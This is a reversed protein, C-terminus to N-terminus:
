ENTNDKVCRVGMARVRQGATGIATISGGGNNMYVRYGHAGTGQERCWMTVSTTITTAQGSGGRYGNAPFLGYKECYRGYGTKTNTEDVVQKLWPLNGAEAYAILESFDNYSPVRWGEPCPDYSSKGGNEECWIYQGEAYRSTASTLWDNSAVMYMLPHTTALSINVWLDAKITSGEKDISPHGGELDYLTADPSDISYNAFMPLPDKRGFQYYLGMARPDPNDWDYTATSSGLNRDMMYTGTAANLLVKSEELNAASVWVHWSWLIVGNVKYAVVANGEKAAAIAVKITAKKGSGELSVSSVLGEADEWVLSASVEGERSINTDNKLFPDDEWMAIAKAAPIEVTTGPAAIYCNPQHTYDAKQVASLTITKIKGATFSVYNDLVYSSTESGNKFSFLTAGEDIMQAPVYARWIGNDFAEMTISAALGDPESMENSQAIETLDLTTETLVNEVTVTTGPALTGHELELLCYKHKFLLEVPEKSNAVGTKRATLVAIGDAADFDIAAPDVNAKYPFYAYLDIKGNEPFKIDTEPVWKSGDFTVKVNQIFNGEHALFEQTTEQRKASFVGFSDGASFSFDYNEDLEAKTLTPSIVSFSIKEGYPEQSPGPGPKDGEEVPKNCAAFACVSLLVFFLKKM